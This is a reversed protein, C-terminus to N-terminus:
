NTYRKVFRNIRDLATNIDSLSTAYACRVFGEGSEGFATGPVVAVNEEELLKTAFEMSTLGTSTIDPFVYFSGKPRFCELGIKKLGAVIVNRRQLYEERMKVMESYGSKLAEEAAVQASISACLMSYQHIKMMADIIKAPGCAYGIRFGTMAYAKSFGHLFVTREKMGPLSAITTLKESDYSLESYIEDTILLLDKEIIIKAIEEMQEKTLTAGTPNCPFNILVAKTKPTIANLLDEPSLAFDTEKTTEIPVPIGHSMLIESRYSVYCPEHYIIEDGPNIIARFILDLAESVGVTIICEDEPSYSISYYEKLYKTLEKRLSLLGLNSTYNTYGKELSYIVSERIHWPTIFDPEGIGLSIINDGMNNVLEFFDRIGSKPLSSIHDAIVNM